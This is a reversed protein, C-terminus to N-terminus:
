LFYLLLFDFSVPPSPPTGTPAPPDGPKSIDPGDCADLPLWCIADKLSEATDQWAEAYEKM